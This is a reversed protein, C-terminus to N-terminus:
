SCPGSYDDPLGLDHGTEHAAIRVNDYQQAQRFDIYINGQGNGAGYYYSGQAYNGEHFTLDARGSTRQLTVNSLSGNWHSMGTTIASAFDPAASINYTITVSDLQLTAADAVGTTSVAVPIALSVIATAATAYRRLSM